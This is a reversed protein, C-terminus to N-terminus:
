SEGMIAIMRPDAIKQDGAWAVADLLDDDMRRGWERDGANVFAKGFGTSSRFNVSLM